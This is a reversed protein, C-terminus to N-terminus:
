GAEPAAGGSAGRPSHVAGGAPYRAMTACALAGAALYLCGQANLLGMLGLPGTLLGGALMGVAQGANDALTLAGFIRGRQRDSGALQLFSILGTEMVVGPAGAVIFLVVYPGVATTVPPLNWITLDLAGFVLAGAATLRGALHSTSMLSLALGAGIAGIAQLGRLLGIESSGGHLERAVFLIFLVIFIGQAVQAVFAVGLAGRIERLHLVAGFGHGSPSSTPQVGLRDDASARGASPLRAILLGAAVFSLADAVVITRLDGAALLLGGLPGGALRGIGTNLAILSNGSVLQEAPLLTPLLANKAPDFLTALSAQVVIVAYVIPLGSRGGVLLLPLLSLAQATTVALMVRRRDAHDALRGAAPALLVGPVLQALFAISTGLASGTLGYVVIPLAVLLMWDGGDSILGALWLSRFDRETLAAPTRM